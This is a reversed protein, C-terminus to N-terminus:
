RRDRALWYPDRHCVRRTPATPAPWLRLDSRSLHSLRDRKSRSGRGPPPVSPPVQDRWRRKASVVRSGTRLREGEKGAGERGGGARDWTRDAGSHDASGFVRRRPRASTVDPFRLAQGSSFGQGQRGARPPACVSHTSHAARANPKLPEGVCVKEYLFYCLY